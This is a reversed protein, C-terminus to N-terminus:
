IYIQFKYIAGRKLVNFDCMKKHSIGNKKDFFATTRRTIICM